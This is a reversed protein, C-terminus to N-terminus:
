AATVVYWLPCTASRRLLWPDICCQHFEHGCPLQRLTAGELYPETCISCELCTPLLATGGQAEEDQKCAKNRPLIINTKTSTLLLRLEELTLTDQRRRAVPRERNNHNHNFPLFIWGRTTYLGLVLVVILAICLGATLGPTYPPSVASGQDNSTVNVLRRSHVHVTLTTWIQRM